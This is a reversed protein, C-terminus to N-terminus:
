LLGLELRAADSMRERSWPPDWVLETKVHDVGTVGCVRDHVEKVLAGAVPCGPATLTMSVHVDGTESVDAGYILGLDYINLPIEPDYVTRLAAIVRERLVAVDVAGNPPAAGRGELELHGSVPSEANLVNLRRHKLKEFEEDVVNM